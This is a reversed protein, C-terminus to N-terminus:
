AGTSASFSGSTRPRSLRPPSALSSLWAPPVGGQEPQTLDIGRQEHASRLAALAIGLVAAGQTGDALPAADADGRARAAALRLERLFLDNRDFAPDGEEVRWQHAAPAYVLLRNADYEWRLVGDEGVVELLREPPRRVYDVHVSALPGSAFRLAIEAADETDVALDSVQGALCV